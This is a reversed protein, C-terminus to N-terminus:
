RPPTSRGASWSTPLTVTLVASFGELAADLVRRREAPATEARRKALWAAFAVFEDDLGAVIGDRLRKVLGPAAGGSALAVTIDGADGLATHAYHSWAPQDVCCLLAGAETARAYLWSSLAEDRPTSVVLFPRARLDDECPVRAGHALGEAAVWAAFGPDLTPWVVSVRAGCERLRRARRLAEADGGVVLCSRGQVALTVVFGPM